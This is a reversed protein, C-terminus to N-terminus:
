KLMYSDPPVLAPVSVDCKLKRTAWAMGDTGVVPVYATTVVGDRASSDTTKAGSYRLVGQVRGDRVLLSLKHVAVGGFDQVRVTVENGDRRVSLAHAPPENTWQLSSPSFSDGSCEGLSIVELQCYGNICALDAIHVADAVNGSELREQFSWRVIINPPPAAVVDVCAFLALSLLVPRLRLM